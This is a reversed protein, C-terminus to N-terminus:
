AAGQIRPVVYTEHMPEWNWSLIKRKPEKKQEPLESLSGIYCARINSMAAKKAYSNKKM